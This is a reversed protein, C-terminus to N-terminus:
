KVARFGCPIVPKGATAGIFNSPKSRNRFVQEARSDIVGRGLRLSRKDKLRSLTRKKL